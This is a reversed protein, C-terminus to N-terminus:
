SPQRHAIQRLSRRELVDAPHLLGHDDRRLQRDQRQPVRHEERVGEHREGHRSLTRHAQDILRDAGPLQDRDARLPVRRDVLRLLGVQVVIPVAVCMWLINLSGSPLRRSMTCPRARTCMSSITDVSGYRRPRTRLASSVATSESRRSISAICRFMLDFKWCTTDREGSSESSRCVSARLMVSGPRRASKMADLRLVSVVATFCSISSVSSRRSRIALRLRASM